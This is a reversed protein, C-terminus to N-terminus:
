KNLETQQLNTSETAELLGSTKKSEKELQELESGLLEAYL